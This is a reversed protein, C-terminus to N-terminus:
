YYSYCVIFNCLYYNGFCHFNTSLSELYSGDAAASELVIFLISIPFLTDEMPVDAKSFQVCSKFTVTPLPTVFILALANLFQLFNPLILILDTLSTDTPFFASFPILDAALIFTGALFTFNYLFFSFPLPCPLLTFITFYHFTEVFYKPLALPLIHLM